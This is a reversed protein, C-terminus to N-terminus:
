KSQDNLRKIENKLMLWYTSDGFAFDDYDISLKEENVNLQIEFLYETDLSIEIGYWVSYSGYRFEIKSEKWIKKGTIEHLDIRLSEFADLLAFHAQCVDYIM